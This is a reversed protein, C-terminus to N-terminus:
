LAVLGAAKILKRHQTPWNPNKVLAINAQKYRLWPNNEDFLAKRPPHESELVVCGIALREIVKEVQDPTASADFTDL